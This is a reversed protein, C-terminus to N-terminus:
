LDTYEILFSSLSLTSGGPIKGLVQLESFDQSHAGCRLFGTASVWGATGSTVTLTVISYTATQFQLTADSAGTRSCYAWVRVPVCANEGRLERKASSSKFQQSQSGSSLSWGPSTSAWATLSTTLLNVFTASTTTVSPIETASVSAGTEVWSTWQCLVPGLRTHQRDAIDQALDSGYTPDTASREDVPYAVPYNKILNGVGDTTVASSYVTDTGIDRVYALPIQQLVLDVCRVGGRYYIVVEAMADESWVQADSISTTVASPFMIPVSVKRMLAWSAGAATDEGAYTETSTPLIIKHTTTDSAPGNWSVLAAIEGYAGKADWQGPVVDYFNTMGSPQILASLRLFHGPLLTFAPVRAVVRYVSYGPYVQTMSLPNVSTVQFSTAGHLGVRAVINRDNGLIGDLQSHVARVRHALALQGGTLAEIPPNTTFAKRLDRYRLTM